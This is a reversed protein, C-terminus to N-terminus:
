TEHMAPPDALRAFRWVPGEGGELTGLSILIRVTERSQADDLLLVDRLPGVALWGLYAALAGASSITEDEIVVDEYVPEQTDDDTIAPPLMDKRLTLLGTNGTPKPQGKEQLTQTRRTKMDDWYAIIRKIEPTTVAALELPVPSSGAGFYVGDIFQSPVTSPFHYGGGLQELSSRLIIRHAFSTRLREPLFEGFGRVTMIVHIGVETGRSLLQHFPILWQETAQEWEALSLSDLLIVIRPLAAISRNSLAARNYADLSNAGQKNMLSKRQTIHKNLGDLLRRFGAISSVISGLIHPSNAFYQYDSQPDGVLGVRLYSPSNFLLLTLLVGLQMHTRAETAGIILLHSTEALDLTVVQHGIDMGLAIATYNAADMFNRQGLLEQLSLPINHETRLYLTVSPTEGENTVLQAATAGIDPLIKTLATQIQEPTVAKTNGREGTKDPQLHYRTHSPFAQVDLLRVPANQEALKRVIVTALNRLKATRDASRSPQTLVTATDPTQWNYADWHSSLQPM